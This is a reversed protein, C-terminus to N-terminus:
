SWAYPASSLDPGAGSDHDAAAARTPPLDLLAPEHAHRTRLLPVPVVRRIGFLILGIVLLRAAIGVMGGEPGYAGGTLWCAGEHTQTVLMTSSSTEGSVPVGFMAQSVNWSLHLGLPLWVRGTRVVALAYMVGGLTASAISLWTAADNPAHALGFVVASALLAARVLEVLFVSGIAAAGIAAGLLLRGWPAPRRM